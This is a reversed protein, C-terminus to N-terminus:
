ARGQVLHRHMGLLSATLCLLVGLQWAGMGAYLFLPVLLGPSVALYLLTRSTADLAWAATLGSVGLLLLAFAVLHRTSVPTTVAIFALLPAGLALLGASLRHGVTHLDRAVRLLLLALLTLCLWALPNGRAVELSIAREYRAGGCPHVLFSTGVTALAILRVELLLALLSGLRARLRHM